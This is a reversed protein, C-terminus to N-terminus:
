GNDIASALCLLEEIQIRFASSMESGPVCTPGGGLFLSCEELPWVIALDSDLPLDAFGVAMLITLSIVSRLTHEM